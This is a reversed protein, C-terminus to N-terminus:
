GFRLGLEHLLNLAAPDTAPPLVVILSTASSVLSTIKFCKKLVLEYMSNNSMRAAGLGVM